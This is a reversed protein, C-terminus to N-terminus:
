TFMRQYMKREKMILNEIGHLESLIAKNNEELKLAELLDIKAEQYQQLKLYAQARRFLGKVDKPDIDLAATCHEIVVDYHQDKLNGAAINLHCQRQLTRLQKLQSGSLCKADISDLYFLAKAFRQLSFKMNSLYISTGQIKHHEARELKEDSLLESPDAARNFSKLLIKWRLRDSEPQFKDIKNGDKDVNCKVYSQEGIKMSMVIKDLLESLMTDGEGIIVECERDLKYDGM